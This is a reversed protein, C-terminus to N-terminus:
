QESGTPFDLYFQIEIAEGQFWQPLPPFRGVALIMEEAKRDIDPYTSSRVVRLSAVTGDDRVTFGVVAEGRRGGILARPLLGFHQRVLSMAYALYEDRTAEPGPFKAKHTAVRAPPAEPKARPHEAQSPKPKPPPPPPMAAAAQQPLEPPPPPPAPKPPPVAEAPPAEVAKPGLTKPNPDGFDDSARAGPPPPAQPKPLAAVPAPPPEVVVMQVPITVTEPPFTLRWGGLVLLLAFLHMAFSGFPGRLGLEEDPLPQYRTEPRLPHPAARELTGISPEQRGGPEPATWYESIRRHFRPEPLDYIRIEEAAAASVWPASEEVEYYWPVAPKPGVSLVPEHRYPRLM